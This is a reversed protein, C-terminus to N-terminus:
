AANLKRLRDRIMEDLHKIERDRPGWTKLRLRRLGTLQRLEEALRFADRDLGRHPCRVPIAVGSMCDEVENSKENIIM